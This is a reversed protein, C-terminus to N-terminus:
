SQTLSDVFSEPGMGSREQCRKFVQLEMARVHAPTDAAGQWARGHTGTDQQDYM